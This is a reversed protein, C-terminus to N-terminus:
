AQHQDQAPRYSSGGSRRACSIPRAAALAFPTLSPSGLMLAAWSAATAACASASRAAFLRGGIASIRFDPAVVRRPLQALGSRALREGGARRFKARSSRAFRAPAAIAKVFDTSGAM